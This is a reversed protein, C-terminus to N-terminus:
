FFLGHPTVSDRRKVAVTIMYPGCGAYTQNGVVWNGGPITKVTGATPMTGDGWDVAASRDGVPFSPSPMTFSRVLVDCLATAEPFAPRRRPPQRSCRPPM